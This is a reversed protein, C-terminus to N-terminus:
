TRRYPHLGSWIMCCHPVASTLMKIAVKYLNLTKTPLLNTQSYESLLYFTLPKFLSKFFTCSEPEIAPRVPPPRRQLRRESADSTKVLYLIFM